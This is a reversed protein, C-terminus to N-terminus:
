EEEESIVYYYKNLIGATETRDLRLKANPNSLTVAKLNMADTEIFACEKKKLPCGNIVIGEGEIVILNLERFEYVGYHLPSVSKSIKFAFGRETFVSFMKEDDGSVISKEATSLSTSIGKLLAKIKEGDGTESLCVSNLFMTKYIVGIIGSFIYKHIDQTLFYAYKGYDNDRLFTVFDVLVAVIFKLDILVGERNGNCWINGLVGYHACFNRVATLRRSLETPVELKNVIYSLKSYTGFVNINLSFIMKEEFDLFLRMTNEAVCKNIAKLDAYEKGACLIALDKEKYFDASKLKKVKGNLEDGRQGVETVGKRYCYAVPMFPPLHNCRECFYEKDTIKLEYDAKFYEGFNSGENIKLVYGDDCESLSGSVGFWPARIRESIDLNFKLIDDAVCYELEVDEYLRGFLDKLIDGSLDTDRIKVGYDTKFTGNLFDTLSKRKENAAARSLDGWIAKGWNKSFYSLLAEINGDDVISFLMILMGAVTLLGNKVYVVRESIEPFVEIFSPDIRMTTNLPTSVVSHLNINRFREFFWFFYTIGDTKVEGVKNSQMAYENNAFNDYLFPFQKKFLETDLKNVDLSIDSFYVYRFVREIRVFYSALECKFGLLDIGTVYHKKRHYIEDITANLFDISRFEYIPKQEKSM